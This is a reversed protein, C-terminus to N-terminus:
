LVAVPRLQELQMELAIREQHVEKLQQHLEGNLRALVANAEKNKRIATQIARKQKSSQKHISPHQRVTPASSTICLTPSPEQSDITQSEPHGKRRVPKSPLQAFLIEKRSPSSEETQSPMKKLPLHLKTESEQEAQEKIRFDAFSTQQLTPRQQVPQEMHTIYHSVQSASPRPPIAPPPPPLWGTRPAPANQQFIKNLDLSSARSHTKQPRPPPIPPEEVKKMAEEISTSSYSRSRPRTKLMNSEQPVASTLSTRHEKPTVNAAMANTKLGQKNDNSLDQRLSTGDPTVEPTMNHCLSSAMPDNRARLNDAEASTTEVDFLILPELSAPDECVTELETRNFDRTQQSAPVLERYPEYITAERSPKPSVTQLVDPLLTQPLADPLPYGNKRAVVLHFAACFEPLSLAGDRDVDSLEWIHSLEPISLKSKTFFKKAVSGSVLANLDPQLSKFQHTYYDRQEETIRWPDDCYNSGSDRADREVALTQAPSSLLLATNSGYSVPVPGEQQPGSPATQRIVEYSATHPQQELGSRAKVYGYGLPSTQYSLPSASPSSHPSLPPSKAEQKEGPIAWKFSNMDLSASPIQVKLGHIDSYQSRNGPKQESDPKLTMFHPLPLESKISELVVPLGNQAAAILKLAVYFQTPGFYGMRKAGCLDTIQHLTDAPLRSARFLEGVRSGRAAASGEAARCLSFLESYRARESDSLSLRLDGGARAREM